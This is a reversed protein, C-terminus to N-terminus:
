ALGTPLLAMVRWGGRESPGLQLWGGCSQARERMGILGHGTRHGRKIPLGGQPPAGVTGDDDISILLGDHTASLRVEASTASAHVLINTLAEQVIRVAAAQVHTAITPMDDVRLRVELGAAGVREAISPLASLSEEPARVSPEDQRLVRVVQRMAALADQGTSAIWQTALRPAEPDRDAVREAAQARIVIASVHHAVVDHLERAIRTREAAIVQRSELERLEMLEANRAALLSATRRARAISEGLLTIAIAAVFAFATPAPDSILTPVESPSPLGFNTGSGLDSAVRALAPLAGTLVTVGALCWPLAWRWSLGGTATIIFGVVLVPVIHFESVLNAGSEAYAVPYALAATVVCTRPFRRSLATALVTAVGAVCWTRGYSTWTLGGRSLLAFGGFWVMAVMAAVSADRLWAPLQRWRGGVQGPYLRAAGSVSTGTSPVGPRGRRRFSSGGMAPAM